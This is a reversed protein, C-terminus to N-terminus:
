DGSTMKLSAAKVDNKVAIMEAVIAIVIEEPTNAGIDLGIPSHVREVTEPAVGKERLHNLMGQAKNRSGIVGLYRFPQQSCYELIDQDHAHGHTVIVIFSNNTFTLDKLADTYPKAIIQRAHPLRENTAFEPRNDVVTVQFDLISAIECLAQGIHGAGFIILKPGSNMPELFISMRGGCKMNLDRALDYEFLRPAEANMLTKAEEMVRKEVAGGGITGITTGDAFILMRAGAERPAPGLSQVVTALVFQRDQQNATTIAQFIDM